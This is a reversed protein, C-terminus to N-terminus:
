AFQSVTPLSVAQPASRANMVVPSQSSHPEAHHIQLARITEPLRSGGDIPLVPLGVAKLHWLPRHDHDVPKVAFPRHHLYQIRATLDQHELFVEELPSFSHGPRACM